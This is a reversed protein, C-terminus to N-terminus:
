QTPTGELDSNNSPEPSKTGAVWGHVGVERSFEELAELFSRIGRPFTQKVIPGLLAIQDGLPLIRAADITAKDGQQGIGAAIISAVAKPAIRLLTEPTLDEGKNIMALRLEPFDVLLYAVGEGSIGRVKLKHGQIEVEQPANVIDVLSVV